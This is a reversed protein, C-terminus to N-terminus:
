LYIKYFSVDLISCIDSFSLFVCNAMVTSINYSHYVQIVILGGSLGNSLLSSRSTFYKEWQPGAKLLLLLQFYTCIKLKQINQM